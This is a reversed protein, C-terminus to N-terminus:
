TQAAAPADEETEYAFVNLEIVAFCLIWLVADYFELIGHADRHIVIGDYAWWLAVAFLIAYLVGKVINRVRWERGDYEGPAYVDYALATCVLLWTVANILDPWMGAAWYSWCAYVALGYGIAQVTRLGYKEFPSVYDEDMSTTEYEFTGLLLVWGLSDLAEFAEGHILFLLINIALLTYVTYKFLRFRLSRQVTEAM